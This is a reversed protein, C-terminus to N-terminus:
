SRAAHAFTVDVRKPDEVAAIDADNQAVDALPYGFRLCRGVQNGLDERDREFGGKLFLGVVQLRRAAPEDGDRPVFQDVADPVSCDRGRRALSEPELRGDDVVVVDLSHLLERTLGLLGQPECGLKRFLLPLRELRPDDLFAVIELDGFREPHESCTM